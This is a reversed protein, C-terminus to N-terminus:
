SVTWIVSSLDRELKLFVLSDWCIGVLYFLLCPGSFGLADNQWLISFKGLFKFLVRRKEKKRLWVDTAHTILSALGISNGGCVSERCSRRVLLVFVVAFNFMSIPVVDQNIRYYGWPQHQSLSRTVGQGTGTRVMDKSCFGNRLYVLMVLVKACWGNMLIQLLTM